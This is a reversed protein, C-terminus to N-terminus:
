LKNGNNPVIDIVIIDPKCNFRIRPANGRELGVGKSVILISGNPLKHEGSSWRLPLGPTMNLLPGFFPICVQGGHTHGALMLHAEQGAMAYSAVHGAMLVFRVDLLRRRRDFFRPYTDIKQLKYSDWLSVFVVSLDGINMRATKDFVIIGTGEFSRRWDYWRALEQNGKIAYVGYRTRLNVEKLLLNFERILRKEAEPSKAQIYDGGFIILDANQEKLLNLAKREYDGICDTQFDAFFAVRVPRFVLDTKYEYRLVELAFPEILLSIVSFFLIFFSVFFLLISLRMRREHKKNRLILILGTMILFFSGHWSLGHVIKSIDGLSFLVAFFCGLFALCLFKFLSLFPRRWVIYLLIIDVVLMLFHYVFILIM